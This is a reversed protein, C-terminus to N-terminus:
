SEDSVKAGHDAFPRGPIQPGALGRGYFFTTPCLTDVTGRKQLLDKAGATGEVVFSGAGIRAGISQRSVVTKM